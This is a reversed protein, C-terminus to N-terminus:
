TMEFDATACWVALEQIADRITTEGQARSVLERIDNAKDSMLKACNLLERLKLKDAARDKEIRILGFFVRWHDKEFINASLQKLLPFISKYLELEKLLYTIQPNREM